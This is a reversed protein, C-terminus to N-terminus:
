IFITLFLNQTESVRISLHVFQNIRVDKLLPRSIDDPMNMASM